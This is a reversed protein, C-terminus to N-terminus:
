LGVIEYRHQVLALLVSARDMQDVQDVQDMPQGEHRRTAGPRVSPRVSLRVSLRVSPRVLPGVSLRVSPWGMMPFAALIMLITPIIPIMPIMLVAIQRLVDAAPVV